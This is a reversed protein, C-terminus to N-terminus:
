IRTLSRLKISFREADKIPIQVCYLPRRNGRKSVYTRENTRIGLSTLINNLQKILEDSVSAFQYWRKSSVVGGDSDALGGIFGQIFEPPLDDIQRLRVTYTKRYDEWDLYQRVMIYLAKSYVRVIVVNGNSPLELHPRLSAKELLSALYQALHYEKLKNLHFRLVRHPLNTTSGDGAFFGTIYGREWNTLKSVNHEKGSNNYLFSRFPSGRKVHSITSKSLNRGFIHRVEKEITSYSSESSYIFNWVDMPLKHYGTSRAQKERINLIMEPKLLGDLLQLPVYRDGRKWKKICSDSVKLTKALERFTKVNYRELLKKFLEKRFEPKLLIRKPKIM